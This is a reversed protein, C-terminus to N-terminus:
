YNMGARRNIPTMTRGPPSGARGGAADLVASHPTNPQQGGAGPQMDEHYIGLEAAANQQALAMMQNYEEMQDMKDEDPIIGDTDLHLSEFAEELMKARGRDGIIKRDWDNNTAQLMETRRLQLQEEIILHQSARAVVNIDGSKEIDDDYLMVHIWLAKISPSIVKEDIHTIVGKLNKNAANMLMGLGSATKGAGGVNENGYIYAPIGSQESAQQFFFKFVQLLVASRDDPQYFNIAPNNSGMGDDETPIIMWPYLTQFDFGPALRNKYYEVLPGSAIGINNCLARALANCIDQCDSFLEVPAKGWISDNVSEFSASFYDRKGLPNPNLRAMIVWNDILWCCVQYSKTPDDIKEEPIGWDLLMQGRVSGWFIITDILPNPDEYENGRDEIVAREQDVTLWQRIGGGQYEKIVAKIASEKFGPVGIMEDLDNIRLRARECLSGDQLNKAGPSPFIDYGSVRQWERVAKIEVKPLWDGSTDQSWSLKKKRKVVPGKLFATPFTALDTIFESLAGYYNGEVLQDDLHLEMRKVDKKARKRKEKMTKDKIEQLRDRINQTTISQIGQNQIVTSAELIVQNAIDLEIAEPLTPVPTPCISWPKDGPPLEVDRIWSELARCKVSSLQMYIESGGTQRIEALKDPNYIGKRRRACELMRQDIQNSTKARLAADFSTRVYSHLNLLYPKNNEKSAKDIEDQQARERKQLMSETVRIGLGLPMGGSKNTMDM